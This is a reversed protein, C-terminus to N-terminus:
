VAVAVREEAGTVDLHRHVPCYRANPMAARGCRAGHKTLARCLSSDSQLAARRAAELAFERDASVLARDVIQYVRHQKSLPFWHRIEQFLERAPTLEGGCAARLRDDNRYRDHIRLVADQCAQLVARRAEELPVATPHPDVHPALHRYLIHSYRLM